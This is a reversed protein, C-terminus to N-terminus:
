SVQFPSGGANVTTTPAPTPPQAAPSPMSINPVFGSLSTSAPNVFTSTFANTQGAAGGSALQQQGILQQLWDQNQINLQQSQLNNAANVDSNGAQLQNSTNFEGLQNAQGTNFQGTQNNAAQNALYAQMIAQLSNNGTSVANGVNQGSATQANSQDGQAASLIQNQSTQEIPALVGALQTNESNALDVNAGTTSGGVIGANALSEDLAHQNGAFQAGMAKVVNQELANGGLQGGIKDLVSSSQVQPLQGSAQMIQNVLNPAQVQEPSPAQFAGAQPIGNPFLQSLYAPTLQGAAPPAAPGPQAPPLTATALPQPTTSPQWAQGGGAVRAYPLPQLGAQSALM